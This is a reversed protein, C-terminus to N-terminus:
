WGLCLYVWDQTTLAWITSGQFARSEWLLQTAHKAPFSGLPETAIPRSPWVLFSLGWVKVFQSDPLSSSVAWTWPFLLSCLVCVLAKLGYRSVVAEQTCLEFAHFKYHGCVGIRVGLDERGSLPLALPTTSPHPSTCVGIGTCERPGKLVVTANRPARPLPAAPELARHSPCACM